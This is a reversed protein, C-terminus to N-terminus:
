AHNTSDHCQAAGSAGAAVRGRTLWFDNISSVIGDLADPLTLQSLFHERASVRPLKPDRPVLAPGPARARLQVKGSGDEILLIHLLM